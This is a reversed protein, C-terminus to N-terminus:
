LQINFISTLATAKITTFLLIATANNFLILYKIDNLSLHEETSHGRTDVQM